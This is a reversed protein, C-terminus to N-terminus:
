EQWEASIRRDKEAVGEAMRRRYEALREALGSDSLALIQAALIGANQAGDVAMAAVPVGPPMQVISYLADIGGLPGGGVPVGVVPLQTYAALVGPLHAARGAGAIIVKLGRAAASRAYEAAADPTRHASLVRVEARVGLERLVHAAKSMVGWDSDSGMVIGVQVHM